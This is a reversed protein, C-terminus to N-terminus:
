MEIDLIASLREVDPYRATKMLSLAEARVRGAAAADGLDRYCTYLGILPNMRLYTEGGQIKLANEFAEMAAKIDGAHHLLLGLEAWTEAADATNGFRMNIEISERFCERARERGGPQYYHHWGVTRLIDSEGIEVMRGDLKRYNERAELAYPYAAAAQQPTPVRHIGTISIALSLLGHGLRLPDGLARAVEIARELPARAEDPRGMRLYGRGIMYNLYSIWWRDGDREAQAVGRRALAISDAVFFRVDQQFSAFAWTFYAAYRPQAEALAMANRYENELWELAGDQDAEAFEVPRAAPSIEDLVRYRFPYFVKAANVASYLHHEVLRRQVEDRAAATDHRASLESAYTRLLDHYVFRDPRHESLLHADCLSRLLRRTGARDGGAVATAAALTVDPGPHLALHRFIEAATASLHRYSWSFVARVDHEVGPVTFADLGEEGALEAAVASLPFDTARACVVALALPLGGCRTIIADRAAPDADAVEIGLRARLYDRAEEDDFADLPLQQAGEGLVLSTLGARSTVVVACGPTGPLLPRVQEADRANDLVLLMRRGALVSRYLAVRENGSPPVRHDPVGLAHLFGALVEGPDAPAEHPGFGRLDAYLQGDEYRTAVEHAWRLALTTKGVGGAGTILTLLEGDGADARATLDHLQATRGEFAASPRPLQAPRVALTSPARGPEGAPGAEAPRRPRIGAGELVDIREERIAQELAVMAPEPDLGLEEALNARHHQLAALADAPRDAAWLSLALLRWREGRLPTSSTLATAQAVATAPDGLRLLVEVLKEEASYRLEQLRSIQPRAWQEDAFQEFPTGRWSALRMRLLDLALEPALVPVRELDRQFAWADVADDALRLAYGAAESVLVRPVARPRRDPELLRRLRSVYAQMSGTGSPPPEGDWLRDVLQDASVVRGRAAVLMGLVALQRDAGSVVSDGAQLEVPGLVRIEVM